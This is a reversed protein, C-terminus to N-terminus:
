KNEINEILEQFKIMRQQLYEREFDMKDIEAKLWDAPPNAVKEFNWSYSRKWNYKDDWLEEFHYRADEEKYDTPLQTYTSDEEVFGNKGNYGMATHYWQWDKENDGM